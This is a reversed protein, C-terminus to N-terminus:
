SASGLGDLTFGAPKAGLRELVLGMCRVSHDIAFRNKFKFALM